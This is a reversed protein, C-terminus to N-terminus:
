REIITRKMPALKALLRNQDAFAIGESDMASQLHEILITMDTVQLGMDKHAAAMTRGSYSCPGGLVYCFQEKLVRRLRVLDRSKFIDSTRPDAITLDLMRDVIVAVGDQGKFRAFLKGGDAIPETGANTNSIVYPDVPQEQQARAMGGTCSLALCAIVLSRATM